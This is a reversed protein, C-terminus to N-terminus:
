FKRVQFLYYIDKMCNYLVHTVWFRFSDKPFQDSFNWLWVLIIM